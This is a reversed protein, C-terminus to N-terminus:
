EKVSKAIFKKMDSITKHIFKSNRPYDSFTIDMNANGDILEVVKEKIMMLCVQKLLIKM